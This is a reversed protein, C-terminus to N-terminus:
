KKRNIYLELWLFLLFLIFSIFVLERTLTKRNTSELYNVNKTGWSYKNWFINKTILQELNNSNSTTNYWFYSINEWLNVIKQLEKENLKSIVQKWWYIKYKIKWFIDYWIPIYWWKETWVWVIIITINKKELNDISEKLSKVILDEWWDTFIVITWPKDEWVFYWNIWNFVELFNTWSKSLNKEDVWSFITKFLSIDSTFPLLELAEWAFIMLWFYNNSKKSIYKNIFNKSWELRSIKKNNNIFDIVNTSKSVDVVFLINWSNLEWNDENILINIWYIPLILFILSLILIIYKIIILININLYEKIYIYFIKFLHKIKNM